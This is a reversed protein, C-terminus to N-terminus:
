PKVLRALADLNAQSSFMMGSQRAFEIARMFIYEMLGITSGAVVYAVRSLAQLIARFLALVDHIHHDGGRNIQKDNLM